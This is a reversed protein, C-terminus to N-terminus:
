SITNVLIVQRIKGELNFTLEDEDVIETEIDGASLELVIYEDLKQLIDQKLKLNDTINKYGINGTKNEEQQVEEFKKIVEKIQEYRVCSQSKRFERQAKKCDKNYWDKSFQNKSCKFMTKNFTSTGFTAKASETLTDCIDTVINNM